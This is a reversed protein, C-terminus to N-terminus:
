EQGLQVVHRLPTCNSGSFVEFSVYNAKCSSNDKKQGQETSRRNEDRGEKVYAVNCLITGGTFDGFRKPPSKSTERVRRDQPIDSAQPSDFCKREFNCVHFTIAPILSRPYLFFVSIM